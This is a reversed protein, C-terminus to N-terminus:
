AEGSAALIAPLVRQPDCGNLGAGWAANFEIIGWGRGAIFGVDVVIARPLSVVQAFKTVFEEAGAIGAAGEYIASDLVRGNLLFCRVETTLTVIESAMILTESTLGQCETKLAEFSQYISGRFQKPIVPKIFAPYTLTSAEGLKHKQIKRQLYESPVRLLLEDEPSCLAFGLKQQLVLCFSDPGYVRVRMPDFTPPDWFRGIKHTRGGGRSFAEALSDREADAKEPILLNLGSTEM